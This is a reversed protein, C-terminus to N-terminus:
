GEVPAGALLARRERIMRDIRLLEADESGHLRLRLRRVGLLQRIEDALRERERDQTRGLVDTGPGGASGAAGRERMAEDDNRRM